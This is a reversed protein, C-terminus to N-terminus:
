TVNPSIAPNVTVVITFNTGKCIGSIPTVTYTVTSPSTTLNILTQSINMQQINQASAGTISGSPSIIPNSWTYTTGVPVIESGSNVPLITFTKSSCIVSTKSSVVPNQNIIVEAPSSTIKSCSGVITSFTVECYYYTTGATSNPPNITTNTEASLSSGGINSNSANSYWQYTPSMSDSNTLITLPSPTQGLCITSPALTTTFAPALNVTVKATASTVGCGIGTQTIVCYYYLTGVSVTPPIFTNNTQASILTGGSNSNSASSFWQYFYSSGIGGSALVSLVMAPSSQCITQMALPQTSITPDNVVVIQALNSTISNCGGGGYTIVVYYNYTQANTLAPPTYTPMNTGVLIGGTASNNTTSFWQYSPAGTGGSLTVSLPSSITGGVCSNQTALPQINITPQTNITITALSSTISTCGGTSFTIVCYYGTTVTNTPTYIASTAGTIKGNDDYWQYTATGTGNSFAVTLPALTAGACVVASQPNTTIQPATVVVVTTTNSKVSCDLGTQSVLCYYYFTGVFDTLPTYSPSNIGVPNGGTNTLTSTKYWQYSFTGIGGTATVTLSTAASNQCQTQTNLPQVNIVPDAVVVVESFASTATGCGSSNASVVVYYYFTGVTTFTPLPFSPSNGGVTTAGTTSNTINSYWQYSVTGTGGNAIVSLPSPITGGVCLTQTDKPQTSITILPSVVIKATNTPISSCGGSPFTVLCYYYLTGATNAPPTYIANTEGPITTGNTTDNATNSYWQYTPTGTAGSISISLITPTGGICVTSSVLPTITPAPNVTFLATRNCNNSNTYTITATGGLVGTVLGASNVTAISPNSSTWPSTTKATASGTLQSTSGVCSFLNGTITPSSNITFTKDTAITSGCENTVTLSVTHSGATTYSIAPPVALTSIAPTGGPFSWSYTLALTGCNVIAASPSISTTPLTQCIPIPTISNITVTPPKKVIVTQTTPNSGCSNIATLKITYTGAETFNFSANTTTQIPFSPTSSSCNASTYLVSWQYNSTGCQNTLVTTNNTTVNLPNCGQSVSTTFQPTITPEICITKTISKIDCSNGIFLTISYSGITNFNISPANVGNSWSDIDNANGGNNGLGSATWGTAPSISWYLSPPSVCGSQGIISGPNSTNLINITSNLCGPTPSITFNPTPPTSIIIPSITTFAPPFCPNTITMSAVFSNPISGTPNNGCSSTTYTHSVSVPANPHVYTITQGDGFDIIYQTGPANEPPAIIPFIITKPSCGSLNGPNGLSGSPTNGVFVPYTKTVSCGNTLNMQISITFSGIPYTHTPNSSASTFTESTTDGWSIIYNLINSQYSPISFKFKFNNSTVNCQTFSTIANGNLAEIQPEPITINMNDTVQCSGVSATVTYNGSMAFTSNPINPSQQNSTYGNPGSWSYTVANSGNGSVSSSLNITNGKCVFADVGATVIFGSIVTIKEVDPSLQETTPNASDHVSILNYTFTGTTATLALLTVSSNTGTTEIILPAGGDINYTFTYKGTGGSGTFTIVPSAANQCVTTTGTITATPSAFSTLTNNEKASLKSVSSLLVFLFIIKYVSRM